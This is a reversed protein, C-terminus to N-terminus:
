MTDYYTVLRGQNATASRKQTLSPVHLRLNVRHVPAATTVPQHSHCVEGICFMLGQQTEPRCEATHMIQWPGKKSCARKM